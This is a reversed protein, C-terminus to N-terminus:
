GRILASGLCCVRIEVDTQPGTGRSPRLLPSSSPPLGRPTPRPILQYPISRASPPPPPFPPIIHLVLCNGSQPLTALSHPSSPNDCRPRHTPPVLLFRTAENHCLLLACATRSFTNVAHRVASCNVILDPLKISRRRQKTCYTIAQHPPSARIGCGFLYGFDNGRCARHRPPDCKSRPVPHFRRSPIKCGPFVSFRHRHIQRRIPSFASQGPCVSTHPSALIV